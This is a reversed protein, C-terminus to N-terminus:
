RLSRCASSDSAHLMLSFAHAFCKALLPTAASDTCSSRAHEAPKCVARSCAGLMHRWAKKASGAQVHCACRGGHGDFVGFIAADETDGLNTQAIHADEM